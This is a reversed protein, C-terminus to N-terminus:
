NQVQISLAIDGRREPIYHVSAQKQDDQALDRLDVRRNGLDIRTTPTVQLDFPVGTSDRIILLNQGPKVMDITGSLNEAPWSNNTTAALIAAPLFSLAISCGLIMLKQM